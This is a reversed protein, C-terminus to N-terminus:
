EKVMTKGAGKMLGTSLAVISKRLPSNWSLQQASFNLSIASDILAVGLPHLGVESLVEKSDKLESISQAVLQNAANNSGAGLSAQNLETSQRLNEMANLVRLFKGISAVSEPGLQIAVKGSDPFAMFLQIVSQDNFQPSTYFAIAEELTDFANNHFFPGTDAAEILPPTNFQELCHGGVFFPNQAIGGFGGPETGPPNPSFVPFPGSVDFQGEFCNGTELPLIGFGGDPPAVGPAAEETLNPVAHGVGTSFNFNGFLGQPFGFQAVLAGFVEPDVNAGANFHCLACKGADLSGGATDVRFFLEKGMEAAADRFEIARVDIDETRGLSLQFLELADLEVATPIRFDEGPVRDLRQTFHQFVAGVSFERLSGSGPAGDGGWGTREIPFAVLPPGPDIPAFGSGEPPTLDMQVIQEGFPIVTPGELGPLVCGNPDVCTPPSLTTALALTHNPSRMVGPNDFGDVNELILGRERLLVPVELEALDPNNEAVFLPDDNPLTAIFAPDITFNNQPAHCTACTRGNGEFTENVFLDAGFAVMPDVLVDPDVITNAAHADRINTLQRVLAMSQSEQSSLEALYDKLQGRWTKTYLRQFTKPMGYLASKESPARGSRTVIVADVEFNKFQEPGLNVSLRAIDNKDRKLTGLRYLDDGKDVAAGGSKDDM